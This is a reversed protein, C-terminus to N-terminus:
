GNLYGLKELRIRMAHASVCFKECLDSFNLGRQEVMVRVADEPMLLEAAFVNAAYEKPVYQSQDYEKSNDRPSSGHGLVCHGLEHAISFRQRVPPDNANVVIVNETTDYYGGFIGLGASSFVKVGLRNAIEIPNLPLSHDWYQRHIQQARERPLM